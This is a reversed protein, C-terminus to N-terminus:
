VIGSGRVEESQRTPRPLISRLLSRNSRPDSEGSPNKRFRTAADSEDAKPSVAPRNSLSRKVRPFLTCGGRCCRDTHLLRPIRARFEAHTCNRQKPIFHTDTPVDSVLCKLQSVSGGPGIGSQLNPNFPFMQKGRARSHTWLTLPPHFAFVSSSSTGTPLRRHPRLSPSFRLLTSILM